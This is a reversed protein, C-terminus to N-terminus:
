YHLWIMVFLVGGLAPEMCNNLGLADTQVGDLWIKGWVRIELNWCGFWDRKRGM